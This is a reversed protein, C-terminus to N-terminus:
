GELKQLCKGLNIGKGLVPLFIDGMKGVRELINHITFNSPRLGKKVEEWLLPTSVTAGPKPRASYACALTQGKRNQLFDVYIKNGRKALSREISTISPLQQVTLSAIIHAFDKVQDYTYKGGMPIYVHLGTAGSTKCYGDIGAKDLVNKVALATDIVEDFTNKPAPDIDIVVYSPKDIKQATSNWPNMEICALNALYLLTAEDNCMIYHIIKENSESFVDITKVWGPAQEGADKQFFGDDAIGNPNRKLSMPRNKIYPLIYPAIKQYYDILDGKTIGEGPWFVKLLNTLQLTHRNITVTKNAPTDHGAETQAGAGAAEAVPVPKENQQKVEKVNKDIRLGEFVPHRLLGGETQETYTINCVLQPKIWTVPMNVKVKKNFPSRGTVLPQMKNWLEKLSRQNFGTGTHGLYELTKGKYDALVLAGFYKRSNRPQTYGAIIAERTNNHKIKLWDKTRVGCHYESEAKKAIIGELDQKKAVNFFDIGYEEIHDCYRVIGNQNKPLLQKLLKKRETLPLQRVDKKSLFLLDFVYYVLPLNTNDEYHQLKQFSPRGKEDLLVIEGDLVADAKISQIAEAVAPYKNIFSLGNRSYLKLKNDQWDAIARYGDWKIEYIWEKSDFPKDTLTALMPKYYQKLKVPDPDPVPSTNTKVTDAKKTTASNARKERSAKLAGAPTYDESNYTGTAYDDRHKILLWSNDRKDGRSVHVLVFGGKLKRGHLIFKLEGKHIAALAQKETIPEENADVPTFTGSDWVIVNGAGYNGKPITGEFDIYDTPHDEVMMALRKDAPNLSPGKPVAWSKLVGGLELRFDYHLHSADHRQVVFRMGTAKKLKGRPEATQK